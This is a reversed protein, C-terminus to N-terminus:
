WGPEDSTKEVLTAMGKRISEGMGPVSLLYLTEQVANWDEESVLVGNNRKGTIHVPEHSAAAEDLLRYLNARAESATLTKMYTDYTIAYTDHM